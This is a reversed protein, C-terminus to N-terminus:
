LIERQKAPILLYRLLYWQEERPKSCRHSVLLKRLSIIEQTIFCMKEWIGSFTCPIPPGIITWSPSTVFLRLCISARCPVLLAGSLLAALEQPTIILGMIDWMKNLPRSLYNASFRQSLSRSYHSGFKRCEPDTNARGKEDHEWM